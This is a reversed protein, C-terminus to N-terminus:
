VDSPHQVPPRSFLARLRELGAAARQLREHRALRPPEVVVGEKPRNVAPLPVPRPGLPRRREAAAISVGEIPRRALEGGFHQKLLVHLPQGIRLPPVRAGGRGCVPDLEEAIQREHHVAVAGVHPRALM